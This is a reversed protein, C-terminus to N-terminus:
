QRRASGSCGHTILRAGHDLAGHVSCRKAMTAPNLRLGMEAPRRTYLWHGRASMRLASAAEMDAAPLGCGKCVRADGNVGAKSAGVSGCHRSASNPATTTCMCPCMHWGVQRRKIKIAEHTRGRAAAMASRGRRWVSCAWHFMHQRERGLQLHQARLMWVAQRPGSVGERRFICHGAQPAARGARLGLAQM